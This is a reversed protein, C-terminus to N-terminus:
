VSCSHSTPRGATVIRAHPAGVQLSLQTKEPSWTFVWLLGPSPDM